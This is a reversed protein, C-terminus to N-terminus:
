EEEGLHARIRKMALRLRSKVTGLPIRLRQAIEGHPTDEYFSLGIVEAQEPPLAAVAQRIKLERRGSDLLDDAAPLSEGILMPDDPDLCPRREKRLRDLRLNRAVTFIWTAAGSRRPDFLGAKRWVSIMTEQALEEAGPGDVGLRLMYAKVRPAFHRFLQAFAEKDSTDAVLSLLDNWRDGGPKPPETAVIDPLGTWSGTRWAPEMGARLGDDPEFVSLALAM